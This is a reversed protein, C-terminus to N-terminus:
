EWPNARTDKTLPRWRHFDSTSLLNLSQQPIRTAERHGSQFGYRASLLLIREIPYLISPLGPVLNGHHAIQDIHVNTVVTSTDFCFEESRALILPNEPVAIYENISGSVANM